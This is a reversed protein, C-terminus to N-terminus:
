LDSDGEQYIRGHVEESAGVTENYINSLVARPDGPYSSPDNNGRRNQVTNIITDEYNRVINEPSLTQRAFHRAQQAMQDRRVPDQVLEYKKGGRAKYNGAEVVFGTENDALTEPLGGIGYVIVPTGSAQAEVPTLGFPEVGLTPYVVLYAAQYWRKLEKHPLEEVFM